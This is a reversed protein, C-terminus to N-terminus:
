KGRLRIVKYIVGFLIAIAAAFGVRVVLRMSPIPLFAGILVILLGGIVVVREDKGELKERPRKKRGFM